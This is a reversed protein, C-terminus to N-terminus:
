IKMSIMSSQCPPCVMLLCLGRLNRAWTRGRVCSKQSTMPCAMCQPIQHTQSPFSCLTSATLRVSAQQQPSPTQPSEAPTLHVRRPPPLPNKRGRPLCPQKTHLSIIDETYSYLTLLSELIYIHIGKYIIIFPSSLARPIVHLLLPHSPGSLFFLSFFVFNTYCHSSLHNKM